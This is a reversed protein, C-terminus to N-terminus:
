KREVGELFENIEKDSLGFLLKITDLEEMFEDRNIKYLEELIVEPPIKEESNEYIDFAYDLTELFDETTRWKWEIYRRVKAYREEVM